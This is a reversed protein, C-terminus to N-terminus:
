WEDLIRDAEARSSAYRVTEDEAFVGGLVRKFQMFGTIIGGAIRVARRRGRSKVMEGGKRLAEAAKPSGPMFQSIDIVIDFDPALRDLEEELKVMTPQIDAERFFGALRMYLRNRVTDARVEFQAAM